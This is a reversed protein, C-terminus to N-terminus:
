DQSQEELLANTAQIMAELENDSVDSHMWWRVTGSRDLLYSCQLTRNHVKADFCFGETKRESAEFRSYSHPRMAASVSGRLGPLMMSRMLAFVWGNAYSCDILGVGPVKDAPSLSDLRYTDLFAAHVPELQKRAHQTMSVTVLTATNRGALSRISETRQEFLHEVELEPFPFAGSTEDLLVPAAEFRKDRDARMADAVKSGSFRSIIIRRERKYAPEDAATADDGAPPQEKGAAKAAFARREAAARAGLALVGQRSATAARAIARSLMAPQAERGPARLVAGVPTAPARKAPAGAATGRPAIVNLGLGAVTQLLSTERPLFRVTTNACSAVERLVEVYKTALLYKTVSGPGGHKFVVSGVVRATEAEGRAENVTARANGKAAALTQAATGEAERLIRVQDGEADIISTQRTARAKLLLANNNLSANKARALADHLSGVDVSQFKVFKIQVGWRTAIGSMESSVRSAARSAATSEILQDVDLQGAVNRVQAQLLKSLMDPVNQTSYLMGKSSSVRFSLLADLLVLCNDRTIVALRPTDIVEDKLVVRYTRESVHDLRNNVLRHFDRKFVKPRDIFPVLCHCGAQLLTHFKGCREVVVEQRELVLIIAWYINYLLVLGLVVGIVAGAIAAGDMADPRQALSHGPISQCAPRQSQGVPNSRM